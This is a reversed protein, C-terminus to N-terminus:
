RTRLFRELVLVCWVTTWPHGREPARLFAEADSRFRQSDVIGLTSLREVDILPELLARVNAAHFLRVLAPAIAAKDIRRALSSPILDAVAARLLGRRIEGRLLWEPPWARVTRVLEPQLFPDACPMKTVVVLQHRLWAFQMHQADALEHEFARADPLSSRLAVRYHRTRREEHERFIPGAWHPVTSTIARAVRVSRPLRDALIPRLLWSFPTPKGFGRLSRARRWGELFRGRRVFRALSRAHGDFLQDGGAGSLVREAGARKAAMLMAAELPGTPIHSPAADVGDVMSIHEVGAEPAVRVVECRLHKELEVLYPRDDGPGAYDLAVAFAEKGARRAVDITLALLIGSDVGGGTMVAVRRADGLGRVVARELMSRLTRPADTASPTPLTTHTEEDEVLRANVGRHVTARSDIPFTWTAYASYVDANPTRGTGAISSLLASEHIGDSFVLHPLTM